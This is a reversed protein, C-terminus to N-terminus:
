SLSLAVLTASAAFGTPFVKLEVRDSFPAALGPRPGDSTFWNPKSASVTTASPMRALLAVAAEIVTLVM